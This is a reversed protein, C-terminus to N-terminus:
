ELLMLLQQIFEGQGLLLYKKLASLHDLTRCKDMMTQMVRQNVIVGAEQIAAQIDSSVRDFDANEATL